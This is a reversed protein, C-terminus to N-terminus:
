VGTPLERWSKWRMKDLDQKLANVVADERDKWAAWLANITKTVSDVSIANVLTTAACAHGPPCLQTTTLQILANTENTIRAIDNSFNQGALSRATLNFQIRTITANAAASASSYHAEAQKLLESNAGFRSRAVFANHESVMKLYELERLADQIGQNSVGTPTVACAVLGVLLILFLVRLPRVSLSDM